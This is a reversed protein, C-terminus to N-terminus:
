IQFRKQAIRAAAYTSLSPRRGSKRMLETPMSTLKMMMEPRDPPKAVVPALLTPRATTGNRYM